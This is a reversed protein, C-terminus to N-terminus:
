EYAVKIQAKGTRRTKDNIGDIVEDIINRTGWYFQVRIPRNNDKNETNSDSIARLMTDYMISQPATIEPNSKAGSYEGFIALTEGYAVNGKALKPISVKPILGINFGFKQGGFKPVWDPIDIKLNNLAKIITNVGNVVGNAMGEIGGLISNIVKKVVNWIGNFINSVTTKLGNWINNWITKIGNLVNSITKKIGNILNSITTKIGNWVTSVVNKIGNWINKFFTAIANFVTKVINLIGNWLNTLFTKIGNWVNSVTNKIGEWLNSFFQAIANWIEQAKEKIMEWTAKLSKVITDWNMIAIVILAIAAIIAVIIAILWGISIGFATSVATAIPMIANYIGMAGNYIGIAVAIAKIGLAIGLITEIVIPNEVIWKFVDVLGNLIDLAVTGIKEGIDSLVDILPQWNIDAIKESIEKFKDSCNNLWSQFKDSKVVNNIAKLLNNFADAINQVIADGNGNYNWANAFAEAINGIIEFILKLTTYITGNTIIKEFSGWVSSLLYGVQGATVKIQNVLEPGYIDWSEKIPKFFDYLKQALLSMEKDVNSLDFDPTVSGSGGGGSDSGSDNDSINNIESHIGALQKTENKAKKANSAVNGMSSASAKAFINVGTLAYVVSQIAKMLKYVLNTVFQIVPALASGMANKMYEINASLQKAGANQSSLWSSASNSLAGYIGRISFLAGAYKLIHSFGGKIGNGMSSFSNKISNGIKSLGSLKTGANKISSIFGKMKGPLKSISSGVKSSFISSLSKGEAKARKIGDKFNDLPARARDIQNILPKFNIDLNGISLVNTQKLEQMKIKIQTLTPKLQEIKARLIDWMSINDQPPKVDIKPPEQNITNENKINGSINQQIKPKIEMRNIEQINEKIKSIEKIYESSDLGNIKIGSIDGAEEPSNFGKWSESSTTKKKLSDLKKETEKIAKNADNNTVELKIKNEKSIKKMTKTYSSIIKKMSKEIETTDITDFADQVQKITQKIAPLIKMFEKLVETVRATVIIEIEEVTM